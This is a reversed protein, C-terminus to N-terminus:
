FLWRLLTVGAWVAAVASLLLLIPTGLMTVLESWSQAVGPKQNM